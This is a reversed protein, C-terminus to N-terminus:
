GECNRRHGRWTRCDKCYVATKFANPAYRQLANEYTVKRPMNDYRCELACMALELEDKSDIEVLRNAIAMGFSKVQMLAESNPHGVRMAYIELIAKFVEAKPDSLM